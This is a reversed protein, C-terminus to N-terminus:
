SMATKAFRRIFGILPGRQREKPRRSPPKSLRAERVPLRFMSHVDILHPELKERVIKEVDPAVGSPLTLRHYAL